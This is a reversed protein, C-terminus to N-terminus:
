AFTACFLVRKFLYTYPSRDGIVELLRTRYRELFREYGDTDTVKKVRTLTTGKVWEVVDATSSMPHAYVQLRVHQRSAGLDVLLQAYREPRLVNREVPDPEIPLGLEAAVEAAVLHSPHDANSPVQVALQGGPRLSSRWRAVVTPHDAVWQLAANAIIVDADGSWVAIDGLEFTLGDATPAEALMAPSSDIGLTSSAGLRERALATLRGDGCGLDVVVPAEVPDLLELLDLFPQDREAQFRTYQQPDWADTSAPQAV